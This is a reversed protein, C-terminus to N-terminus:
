EPFTVRGDYGATARQPSLVTSVWKAYLEGGTVVGAADFTLNRYELRNFTEATGLGDGTSLRVTSTATLEGDMTSAGVDITGTIRINNEGSTGGPNTQKIALDWMLTALEGSRLAAVSGDVVSAADAYKAYVCGAETCDVTGGNAGPQSLASTAAPMQVVDPPGLLAIAFTSNFLGPGDGSELKTKMLRTAGIVYIAGDRDTIGPKAVPEFTAGGGCAALSALLFYWLGASARM